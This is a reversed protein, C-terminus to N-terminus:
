YILCLSRRGMQGSFHQSPTATVMLGSGAVADQWLQTIMSIAQIQSRKWGLLASLWHHTIGWPALSMAESIQDCPLEFCLLKCRQLNTSAGTFKRPWAGLL